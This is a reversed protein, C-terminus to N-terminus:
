RHFFELSDIDKTHPVYFLDAVDVGENQLSYMYYYFRLDYDNIIQIVTVEQVAKTFRLEKNIKVTIYKMSIYNQEEFNAFKNQNVSM